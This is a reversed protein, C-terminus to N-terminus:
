VSLDRQDLAVPRRGAQGRDGPRMPHAVVAGIDVIQVAALRHHHAVDGDIAEGRGRGEGGDIDARHDVHRDDLVSPEGRQEVDALRLRVVPRVFLDLEHAVDGLPGTAGRFAPAGLM